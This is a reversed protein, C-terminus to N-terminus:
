SRASIQKSQYVGVGLGMEDCNAICLSSPMLLICSLEVWSVPTHYINMMNMCRLCDCNPRNARTTHVDCVQKGEEPFVIGDRKLACQYGNMTRKADKTLSVGLKRIKFATTGLAGTWGRWTAHPHTTCCLL